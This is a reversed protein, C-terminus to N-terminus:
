LTNKSCMRSGVLLTMGGLWQQHSTRNCLHKFSITLTNGLYLSKTLLNALGGKEWVFLSRRVNPGEVDKRSIHM